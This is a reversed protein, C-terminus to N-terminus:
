SEIISSRQGRTGTSGSFCGFLRRLSGSVRLSFRRNGNRGDSTSEEPRGTRVDLGGVAPMQFRCLPCSSHLELWPLICRSHYMHQCPMQRLVEGLEIEDRCVACQLPLHHNSVTVAPMAEVATKSAPPTGCGTRRDQTYLRQIPLDIGQGIFHGGMAGRGGAIYPPSFPNAGVIRGFVQSPRVWIVTSREGQEPEGVGFLRTQISLARTARIIEVFGDDCRPCTIEDGRVLTRAVFEHCHHCWYEYHDYDYNFSGAVAASAM